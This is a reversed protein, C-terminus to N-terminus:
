QMKKRKEKIGGKKEKGTQCVGRHTGLACIRSCFLEMTIRRFCDITRYHM